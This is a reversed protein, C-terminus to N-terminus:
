RGGTEDQDLYERRLRLSAVHFGSQDNAWGTWCPLCM